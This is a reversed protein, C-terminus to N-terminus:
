RHIYRCFLAPLKKQLAKDTQVDMSINIVLLSVSLGYIVSTMVWKQTIGLNVNKKERWFFVFFYFIFYFFIDTFLSHWLVWFIVLFQNLLNLFVFILIQCYKTSQHSGHQCLFHLKLFFLEFDSTWPSM